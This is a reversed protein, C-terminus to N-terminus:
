RQVAASFARSPAPLADFVTEPKPARDLLREIEPLVGNRELRALLECKLWRADKMSWEIELGGGPGHDNPHLVVHVHLYNSCHSARCILRRVIRSEGCDVSDWGDVEAAWERIAPQGQGQGKDTDRTGQGRGTGRSRAVRPVPSMGVVTPIDVQGRRIDRGQGKLGHGKTKMKQGKSHGKTM